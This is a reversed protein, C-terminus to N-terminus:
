DKNVKVSLLNVVLPELRHAHHEFEADVSDPRSHESSQDPMLVDLLQPVVARGDGDVSWVVRHRQIYPRGVAVWRVVM